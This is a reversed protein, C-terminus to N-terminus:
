YIWPTPCGDGCILKLVNKDGGFSVGYGNAIVVGQGLRELEGLCLCGGNEKRDRYTQRNQINQILPLKCSTTKPTQSRESLMTNELKMWTAHTLVENRKIASYHEM